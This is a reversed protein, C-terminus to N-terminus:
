WNFDAAPATLMENVSADTLNFLESLFIIKEDDYDYPHQGDAEEIIIPGAASVAQFAVHSHYLYSGAEGIQPRIEYDFFHQAQAHIGSNTASKKEKENWKIRFV